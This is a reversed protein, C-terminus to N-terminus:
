ENQPYGHRILSAEIFKALASECFGGQGIEHDPYSGGMFQIRHCPTNDDGESIIDRAIKDALDASGIVPLLPPIAAAKSDQTNKM